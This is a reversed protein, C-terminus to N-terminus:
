EKVGISFGAGLFKGIGFYKRIEPAYLIPRVKEIDPIGKETLVSEDAKIDMIQGIFQTHLGLEITHILICELAFPFEKIYPADVVESRVSTLGTKAFKDDKKGSAIGFYDVEKVFNESAINVTFAKRELICGYTYTAKRLSVGICPPDSCCVGAWAATMVNAKGMKDYTGVVVAPTPYLITKAGVSKKM